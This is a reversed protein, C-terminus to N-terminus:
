LSLLWLPHNKLLKNRQMNGIFIAAQMKSDSFIGPMYQLYPRVSETLQVTM